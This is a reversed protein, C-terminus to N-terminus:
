NNFIYSLLVVGSKMARVQQLTFALPHKVHAFLSVGSGIAVPDIMLQLEDILGKEALQTVLSNSGLITINRDSNKKLQTLRSLIDGGIVQTNQWDSSTLTNSCVLKTAANMRAAVQPDHEMALTNPWYSVMLEYTKRGFLLMNNAALSRAAYENEEKGHVHWSIDGDTNHTYGNLTTFIFASLTAM